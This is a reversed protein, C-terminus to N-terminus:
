IPNCYESQAKHVTAGSIVLRSLTDISSNSLAL